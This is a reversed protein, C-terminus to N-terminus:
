KQNANIFNNLNNNGEICSVNKEECCQKFKDSVHDNFEISESLSSPYASVAFTSAGIIVIFFLCFYTKM